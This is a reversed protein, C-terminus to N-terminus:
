LGGRYGTKRALYQFRFVREKIRCQKDRYIIEAASGLGGILQSVAKLQCALRGWEGTPFDVGEVFDWPAGDWLDEPANVSDAVARAM